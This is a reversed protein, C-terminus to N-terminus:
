KAGEASKKVPKKHLQIKKKAEIIKAKVLLNHVTATPQAGFAIWKKTAEKNIVFKNTHPDLHGLDEVCKGEIKKRRESVIIRFTVQHKKGVRKLKIALM